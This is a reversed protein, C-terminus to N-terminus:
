RNLFRACDRIKTTHTLFFPLLLNSVVIGFCCGAQSRRRVLVPQM